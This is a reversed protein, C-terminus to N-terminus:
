ELIFINQPAFDLAIESLITGDNDVKFVGGGTTTADSATFEYGVLWANESLSFQIDTPLLSIFDREKQIEQFSFSLDIVQNANTNLDYIAPFEPIITQQSVFTYYLRNNMLRERGTIIQRFSSPQVEILGLGNLDYRYYRDETSFLYVDNNEGFVSGIIFDGELTIPGLALDSRTDILGFFGLANSDASGENRHFIFHDNGFVPPTSQGINGFPFQRLEGNNLNQVNINFNTLNSDTHFGTYVRDNNNVVWNPLIENTQEFMNTGMNIVGTELDLLWGTNFTYFGIVNGAIYTNLINPSIGEDNSLNIIAGEQTSADFNFSIVGDQELNIITFNPFLTEDAVQDDGITGPDDDTCAIFCFLLILLSLRPIQM